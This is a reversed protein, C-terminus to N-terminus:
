ISPLAPRSREERGEGPQLTLLEEEEYLGETIDSIHLFASKELGIDLFAAQLGPLITEVRGKYIDGVIREEVTREVWLEVLRRDELIAVRTESLGVNAIIETYM